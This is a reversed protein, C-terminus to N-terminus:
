NEERPILRVMSFNAGIPRVDPPATFAPAVQIEVEYRSAVDVDAELVFMGPRTLSWEGLGAGNVALTVKVARAHAFSMQHLHGRLRLRQAGENVRELWLTARHGMWRYRAGHDGELDHWGEQLHRTHEPQSFDVTDPRIGPYLHKREASPLLNYVDSENPARYSCSPCALDREADATLPSHCDPCRLYRSLDEVPPHTAPPTGHARCFAALQGGLLKAPLWDSHLRDLRRAALRVLHEGPGRDATTIEYERAAFHRAILRDWDNLRMRHNQRIGFSDEQGAGIVDKIFYGLLGWRALRKEWPKMQSPYPCRYLRLSLRRRIPEEMFVFIGGPALVRKVELVVKEIDLFQSLM